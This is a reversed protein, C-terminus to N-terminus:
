ILIILLSSGFLTYGWLKDCPFEAHLRVGPEGLTKAQIEAKLQVLKEYGANIEALKADLNAVARPNYCLLVYMIVIM